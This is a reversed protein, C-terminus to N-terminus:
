LYSLAASHLCPPPRPETSGRAQRRADRLGGAVPAAPISRSARQRVARAGGLRRLPRGQRGRQLLRPEPYVAEVWSRPARGSRAPSRRSASRSAHGASPGPRSALAAALARGDEWYSRAASAGTGTLWYLTINDLIHERTLNGSPSATSSRAPSRAPLQGHRPRADLGGARRTLRAPRLRDDAAAHGHELFYGFGDQRSRRSRTPRRASRRRIETPLQDGIALVAALLNM